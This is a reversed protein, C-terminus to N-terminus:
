AGGEFPNEYPEFPQPFSEQAQAANEQTVLAVPAEVEAPVEEGATAAECAQLGLSGIAYPYQAVTATLGGDAVAALADPNGDVSIVSVDANGLNAAARVVGLGMDDNASFFGGLDPTARLIDTAATLAVQREWDASTTQVVELRGEVAERFGRLRAESTVDGAIGGILAVSSGEPLVELMHEGALGGAAVNDTGIYTAFAVGAAEAAEADVPSDINVLPTGDAAIRALPQVLNNGSIPNVVYCGFDQGALTTLRDAQGTTDTISQAAQVTVDVGDEGAQEELGRQMTQFFPNDLGKIVAAYSGGGPGGSTSGASTGGAESTDSGCATVSLALAVAGLAAVPGRAPRSVPAM